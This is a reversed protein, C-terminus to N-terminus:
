RTWAHSRRDTSRVRKRLIYTSIIKIFQGATPRRDLDYNALKQLRDRKKWSRAAVTRISREMATWSSGALEGVVQCVSKTISLLCDEDEVALAVTAAARKRGKAAETNGLSRLIDM